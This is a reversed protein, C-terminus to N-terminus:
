VSYITPLTLHKYSVASLYQKDIDDQTIQHKEYVKEVADFHYEQFFQLADDVRDECQLDDVNIEIVPWGLRRLCYTKLDERSAPKAM